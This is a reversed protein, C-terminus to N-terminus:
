FFLKAKDCEALTIKRGSDGYVSDKQINCICRLVIAIGTDVESFSNRMDVIYSHMIPIGCFQTM